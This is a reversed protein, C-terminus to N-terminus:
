GRYLEFMGALLLVQPHASAIQPMVLRIRSRFASLKDWLPNLDEIENWRLKKLDLVLHSRSRV